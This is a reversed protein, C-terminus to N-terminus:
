FGKFNESKRTTIRWLLSTDFDFVEYLRNPKLQLKPFMSAQPKYISDSRWLTLRESNALVRESWMTVGELGELSLQAIRDVIYKEM